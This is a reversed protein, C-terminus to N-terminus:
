GDQETGQQVCPRHSHMKVTLKILNKFDVLHYVETHETLTHRLKVLISLLRVRFISLTMGHATM